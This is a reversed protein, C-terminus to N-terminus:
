NIMNLGGRFSFSEEDTPVLLRRNSWATGGTNAHAEHRM